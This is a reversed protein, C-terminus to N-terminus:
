CVGFSENTYTVRSWVLLSCCCVAVRQLVSCCVAVCQLVSCYVAVCQLACVHCSEMGVLQFWMFCEHIHCSADVYAIRSMRIRSVVGYGCAAVVHHM